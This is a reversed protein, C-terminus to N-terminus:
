TEEEEFNSEDDKLEYYYIEHLTEGEKTKIDNLLNIIEDTIDFYKNYFKKYYYYLVDNGKYYLEKYLDIIYYCDDIYIEKIHQKIYSILISIINKHIILSLDNGNECSVSDENIDFLIYDYYNSEIFNRIKNSYIVFVYLLDVVNDKKIFTDSYYVINYIVKYLYMNTINYYINDCYKDYIEKVKSDYGKNYLKMIASLITNDYHEVFLSIFKKDTDIEINYIDNIKYDKM